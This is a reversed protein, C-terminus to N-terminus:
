ERAENFSQHERAAVFAAREEVTFPKCGFVGGDAVYPIVDAKRIVLVTLVTAFLLLAGVVGLGMAAAYQLREVGEIQKSPPLLPPESPFGFPKLAPFTDKRRFLM